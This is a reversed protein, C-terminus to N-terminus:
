KALAACTYTTRSQSHLLAIKGQIILTIDSPKAAYPCLSRAVNRYIRPEPYAPVNLEGLSWTPLNLSNRDPGEEYVYELLDEPLKLAVADTMYVDADNRNGAYLAWSLYNDWANFFSLLPAVAFLVLVAKQFVAGKPWLIERLSFDPVRWFLLFASLAMAFNWPWVVTNANHTWPGIAFLIFTHMAAAVLLATTRYRRSLLAIGIAMEVAPVLVGARHIAPALTAPLIHTVPEMLWPFADNLFGGNAKQLGSWFYVSVVILRCTEVGRLPLSLAILMFSYQYFWPQCRSQDLAALVFALIVFAAVPASSRPLVAAMALSLLLAGYVLYDAPHPLAHLGSWVPTQPYLRSSLWLRPSLLLGAMMGAIVVWRLWRVRRPALAVTM